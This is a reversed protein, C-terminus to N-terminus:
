WQAAVQICISYFSDSLSFRLLTSIIFLVTPPYFILILYCAQKHALKEGPVGPDPTYFFSSWFRESCVLSSGTTTTTIVNMPKYTFTECWCVRRTLLLSPLLSVMRQMEQEVQM